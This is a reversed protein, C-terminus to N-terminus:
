FGPTMVEFPVLNLQYRFDVTNLASEEDKDSISANVKDLL